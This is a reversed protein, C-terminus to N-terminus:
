QEKQLEFIRRGEEYSSGFATRSIADSTITQLYPCVDIEGFGDRSILEEWKNLVEDCSLKFAPIMLKIKEFHFARSLIKRHKTWKEGDYTFLGTVILRIFPNMPQGRGFADTKNFIDKVIEPDNLILAPTPGIWAFCKKGYTTITKNFFGVARPKIDDNLNIPKTKSAEFFQLMEKVDGYLFNFRNGKFGQKRLFGELKKPRFYAFN